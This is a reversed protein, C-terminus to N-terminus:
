RLVRLGAYKRDGEGRAKVLLLVCAALVVFAVPPVFVAVAVLALAAAEAYLALTGAAGADLRRAARAFLGGLAARALLACAVGGVLGPWAAEDAAALSGAFLLAGLVVGTALTGLELLRRGQEERARNAASREAGFSVLALAFVALLFGPSELFQWGSGSFDIGVDGRALAGAALAPLFPRVGTAGALGAGQGIDVYLSIPGPAPRYGAPAHRYDV